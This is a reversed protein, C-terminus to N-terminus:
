LRFELPTEDWTLPVARGHAAIQVLADALNERCRQRLALYSTTLRPNVEIIRVPWNPDDPVLVLDVGVWGRMEPSLIGSALDWLVLSEMAEVPYRSGLYRLRHDSSLLQEMPRLPQWFRDATLFSISCPRGVTYPQVILDGWGEAHAQQACKHLEAATEVRFTAQSGAGDVPKIVAPFEEWVLDPRYTVTRPTLNGERVDHFRRKDSTLRIFEESCNLAKGGAARVAAVREVLLNRFEPAIVLCAEVRTAWRALMEVDDEPQTVVVEVGPYMRLRRELAPSALVTLRYTGVRSLDEVLARLMGWGEHLLALGAPDADSQVCCFEYLLLHM